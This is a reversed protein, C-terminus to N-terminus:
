ALGVRLAGPFNLERTRGIPGVGEFVSRIELGPGGGRDGDRSRAGGYKQGVGVRWIRGRKIPDACRPGLPGHPRNPLPVFDALSQFADPTQRKEMTFSTATNQHTASVTPTM